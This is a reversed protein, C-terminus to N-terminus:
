ATKELTAETAIVVPERLLATADRLWDLAAVLMMIGTVLRLAYLVNRAM